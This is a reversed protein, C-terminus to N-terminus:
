FKLEAQWSSWIILSSKYGIREWTEVLADMDNIENWYGAVFVIRSDDGAAGVVFFFFVIFGLIAVPSLPIRKSLKRWADDIHFILIAALLNFLDPIYWGCM